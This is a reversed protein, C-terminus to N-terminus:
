YLCFLPSEFQVVGQHNYSGPHRQYNGELRWCLSLMVAPFHVYVGSTTLFILAFNEFNLQTHINNLQPTPSNKKFQGRFSIDAVEDHL